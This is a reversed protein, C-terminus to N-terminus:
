GGGDLPPSKPSKVLADFKRLLAFLFM